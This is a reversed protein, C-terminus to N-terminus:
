PDYRQITLEPMPFARVNETILVAGLRIAHSGIMMDAVQCVRGQRAYTHRYRGAMRAAHEDIPWFEFGDLLRETAALEHDAVGSYAEAIVLANVGLIDDSLALRQLLEVARRRGKLWDIVATSDLLYRM